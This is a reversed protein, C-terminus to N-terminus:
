NCSPFLCDYNIITKIKEGKCSYNCKGCICDTSCNVPYLEARYGDLTIVNSLYTSLDTDSIANTINITGTIVLSSCPLICSNCPDTLHGKSELDITTSKTLESPLDYTYTINYINNLFNTKAFSDTILLNKYRYCSDNVIIINYTYVYEGTSKRNISILGVKIIKLLNDCLCQNTKNTPTANNTYIRTEDLDKECLKKSKNNQM